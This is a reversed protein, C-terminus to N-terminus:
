YNELLYEYRKSGISGRPTHSVEGTRWPSPASAYHEKTPPPLLSPLQCTIDQMNYLQVLEPSLHLIAVYNCCIVVVADRQWEEGDTIRFDFASEQTQFDGPNSGSFSTRTANPPAEKSSRTSRNEQTLEQVRSPGPCLSRTGFEIKKGPIQFVPFNLPLTMMCCEDRVDWMKIIGDAELSLVAGIFRLIRVDMVASKHGYLSVLPRQTVVPNWLRVM